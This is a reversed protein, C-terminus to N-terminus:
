GSVHVTTAVTATNPTVGAVDEMNKAEQYDSVQVRLKHTGPTAHIVLRGARYQVPVPHGDITATASSPDVGSGADVASVWITRAPAGPAVLLVPPSTDNVWYRFTFPGAGAASRTDFVIDYTGPLPLIAGAIPRTQGYNTLYPNIAQPLGTYGVLHNEDGAYVVHPVANGSVVAVGFNAVQSAIKM